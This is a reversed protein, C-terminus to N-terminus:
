LQRSIWDAVQLSPKYHLYKKAKSIDAKTNQAEGIRPPLFKIKAPDSEILKAIELISINKGTGINFAQGFISKDTIAAANINATVIDGVYVFDRKQSGNGVVTIPQRAKKQRLFIGLVPAYIGTTPMREGYVNFYRLAVTPLGWIKYYMQVLEEGALKTLSYPNLNDNPMTEKMPCKNKLGYCASTSSYVVKRVMSNTAAQLVNCTGVVNTLCALAPNELSTGIRSESALHFVYDVGKFIPLIDNYNNISVKFYEAKPNKYFIENSTASEDDIVKVKHCTNVLTDVIHSGIFGCGGTVLSVAQKM